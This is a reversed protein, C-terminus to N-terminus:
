NKFVYRGAKIFNMPNLPKGDFRVEYHLHPGTSRGSSGLLAIRQRHRVVDGVKVLAKNLHAFRTRIGFGHDLEVVIGYRGKKGSYVVTGPAPAWVSSKMWGAMDLGQHRSRRGNVPDARPGYASTIRYYDVPLALPIARLVDKLSEWRTMNNELSLMTGGLEDESLLEGSAVIFPGGQGLGEIQARALLKDVKLGTMAIITEVDEISSASREAARQLVVEEAAQQNSLEALLSDIGTRLALRTDHIEGADGTVQQLGRVVERLDDKLSGTEARDLQLESDLGAVLEQLSDREGALDSAEDRSAELNVTLESNHTDIRQRELELAGLETELSGITERLVTRNKLLGDREATTMRLGTSLENNSREIKQNDDVVAALRVELGEAREQLRTRARAVLIRGDASAALDARVKALMSELDEGDNAISALVANVQDLHGRMAVRSRAVIKRPGALAEGAGALRRESEEAEGIQAALLARSEDLAFRARDVTDQYEEIEAVLDEYAIKAELIQATNTANIAGQTVTLPIASAAWIIGTVVVACAAMQSKPGVSLFRVEGDSRILIERERFLGDLLRRLGGRGADRGFPSEHQKRSRSFMM